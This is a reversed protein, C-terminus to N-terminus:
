PSRLDTGRCAAPWSEAGMEYATPLNLPQPYTSDALLSYASVEGGYISGNSVWLTDGCVMLNDHGLAAMEEAWMTRLLEIGSAGDLDYVQLSQENGVYLLRGNSTVCQPYSGDILLDASYSPDIAYMDHLNGVMLYPEVFSFVTLKPHMGITGFLTLRTILTPSAPDSISVVDVTHENGLFVITDHIAVHSALDSANQQLYSGVEEPFAPDALSLLHFGTGTECVVVYGGPTLTM